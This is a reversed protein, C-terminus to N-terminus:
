RRLRTGHSVLEDTLQFPGVRDHTSVSRHTFSTHISHRVQLPLIVYGGLLLAQLLFAIKLIYTGPGGYYCEYDDGYGVEWLGFVMAGLSFAQQFLALVFADEIFKPNRFWYVENSMKGGDDEVQLITKVTMNLKVALACCLLFNMASVGFTVWIAPGWALILAAAIAWRGPSMGLTESLNQELCHELFQAFDFKRSRINHTRVFLLEFCILTTNPVTIGLTEKFRSFLDEGPYLREYLKKKMVGKNDDEVVDIQGKLALKAEVHKAEVHKTTPIRVIVDRADANANADAAADSADAGPTEKENSKGKMSTAQVICRMTKEMHERRNKLMLNVRKRGLYLTFACASIHSIAMFFIFGHIQHLTSASLFPEEGYACNEEAYALGKGLLARRRKSYSSYTDCMQWDDHFVTGTSVCTNALILEEFLMLFLSVSGLLFFEEEAKHIVTQMTKSRHRHKLYHVFKEILISLVAFIVFGVFLAWSDTEHFKRGTGM